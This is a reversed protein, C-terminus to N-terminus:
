VFLIAVAKWVVAVAFQLSFEFRHFPGPLLYNALRAAYAAPHILPSEVRGSVRSPEGLIGRM